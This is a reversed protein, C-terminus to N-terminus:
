PRAQQLARTMRTSDGWTSLWILTETTAAITSRLVTQLSRKQEGSLQAEAHHLHALEEEHISNIIAHLGADRSQLFHLQDDLHRHVTEEVAATCIWIAQRGMLATLLGLLSGGLSWLQMIRCPRSGRAPMAAYFKACHDIEDALMQGLAPVMDPWLRRAVAIQASYIRIAGYEGAHNVRVIRKITLADRPALREPSITRHDHLNM